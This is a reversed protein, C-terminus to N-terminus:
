PTPEPDTQSTVVTLVLEFVAAVAAVAVGAVPEISTLIAGFALFTTTLAAPM